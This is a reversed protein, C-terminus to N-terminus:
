NLKKLSREKYRTFTYIILNDTGNAQKYVTSERSKYLNGAIIVMELSILAQISTAVKNNWRFTLLVTKKM